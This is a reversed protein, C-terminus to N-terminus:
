HSLEEANKADWLMNACMTVTASRVGSDASDHHMLTILAWILSFFLIMQDCVFANVTIVSGEGTILAVVFGCLLAIQGFM